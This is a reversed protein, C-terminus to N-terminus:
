NVQESLYRRIARLVADPKEAHVWHGAGAIVHARAQPFQALLQERYAETVYPSNGGPIFLAPHEWAPITEWGVIHPYQDWLVPVNFRWEGDVFSKLLFQIVGEEQLHQRMVSAAQQRSSSQADTVANIAAFIEDHRRVHYDVPAIDIAVLREVREPALATLAMVAKGGMSHGIFIAKEIQRADLTDLLDQAMAPYNMEPSRPSLGHNRMDVQIIDHDAVLDRALIGLNDLSGFLGHVLVIPSNNHLNQASQARINLKM